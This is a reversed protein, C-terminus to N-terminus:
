SHDDFAYQTAWEDQIRGDLAIDRAVLRSHGIVQSKPHVLLLTKLLKCFYRFCPRRAAARRGQKRNSENKSKWIIAIGAWINSWSEM